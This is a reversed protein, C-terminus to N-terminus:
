MAATGLTGRRGSDLAERVATRFAQVTVPKALSFVGLDHARKEIDMRSGTVMLIPLAPDQGRLRTVLDLGTIGPMLFDTIVLDYRTPAFREIAAVGNAVADVVCDMTELLYLFLDRISQEDEVLLVRPRRDKRRDGRRDSDRSVRSTNSPM